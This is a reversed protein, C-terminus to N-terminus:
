RPQFAIRRITKIIIGLDSVVTANRAYDLNLAIKRPMVEDVYLREPDSSGALMESEDYYRISAPDTIGPILELVRRQEADYLEVYRPVEPRPGVFSMEGALVNLLQPLEDLKVARLIRGLSTLRRDGRVTLQGGHREADVVMTRFKWIRFRSAARGVREQRFFVAGGDSVKVALAVAAFLPATAVLGVSAVAIDFLRKTTNM